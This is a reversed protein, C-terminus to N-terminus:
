GVRARSKRTLQPSHGHGYRFSSVLGARVLSGNTREPHIKRIRFKDFQAPAYVRGAPGIAFGDRVLRLAHWECRNLLERAIPPGLVVPALALRFQVGHRLEDGLDVPEINM